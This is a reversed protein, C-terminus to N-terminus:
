SSARASASAASRRIASAAGSSSSGGNRPTGHVILSDIATSPIGLQAPTTPLRSYREVSVAGVAARSMAAPAM